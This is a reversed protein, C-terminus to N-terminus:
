YVDKVTNYVNFKGTPTVLRPDKIVHKLKLTKDDVVVLASKEEKGNWVSFWVEDGNKNYEPQVVRKAGPGLNAWEAIPLVKYGAELNRIDFVAISQSIKEDPNLPTDVWLHNSRPHTKVFLSGGGQGELVRVAKWAHEPHGEPDTAVLTIKANGLASTAWVPGYKPDIFNAGRGPHPIKDVDVMATLKQDRSDVVAIKDSQNAATLFYRQTSDWGGDHLFRAAGISTVKLNEIDEYNVLLIQGTEKVNVIFEPHEHSAVIAAVRPEPHYEQTDVTMGRTSVVKKPELTEGDMITYQPPWYAGAIAYKDEFGKYKSTEVSRAELGIKIEAVRQIPNMYLDILDIRGDRGITYVYRGSHSIRSIHVAYGTPIIAAIRKRDGDIIAVEGSDRLTVAFVNEINIDNQKTKPRQEPPVLVKWTARMQELGFEPPQPPEHQVFRAMLDVEEKTLQGSTGWNPMGAPSGRDIFVRLYDTGRKLTIDPTLPKGTAGKRLVGHCGACRQFYLEKAHEFEAETIPPAGPTLRVQASGPPVTSPAGQYEGEAVITGPHDTPAGAGRPGLQKRAAAIEAPEVVGGDNGWTNLVYTLVNAIEEDSLQAMAPMVSNYKVGNVVVEGELGRLVIEMARKRDSLLFDSGALPPFAGPLGLGTAQHCASCANSYVAEGAKMRQAKASAGAVEAEHVQQAFSAGPTLAALAFISIASVTLPTRTM